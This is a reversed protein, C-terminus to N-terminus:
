PKLAYGIADKLIMGDLEMMMLETLVVHPEFGTRAVIREVPLPDGELVSFISQAIPNLAETEEPAWGPILGDKDPLFELVQDPHDVLTAGDRILRHSGKFTPMSINGPVVLVPRNMQNAATATRLAGSAEPAEIILTIHSLGAIIQNRQLLRQPAVPAGCAFPSVLLGKNKVVEEFFESNSAPSPSDLGCGFVGVTRGGGEIAGRMAEVDIGFAGGSIITFGLRALHEGFKRATAKGYTSARRTGVIAVAPRMLCQTDGIAFMAAPHHEMERLTQPFEEATLVFAGQKLAKELGQTGFENLRSAKDTTLGSARRLASEPDLRSGRVEQLVASGVKASLELTLFQQWFATTM